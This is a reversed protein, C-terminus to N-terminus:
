SCTGSICSFALIDTFDRVPLIYCQMGLAAQIRWCLMSLPLQARALVQFEALTPVPVPFSVQEFHHDTNPYEGLVSRSGSSWTCCIPQATSPLNSHHRTSQAVPGWARALGYIGPLRNALGDHWIGADCGTMCEPSLNEQLVFTDQYTTTLSPLVAPVKSFSFIHIIHPAAICHHQRSDYVFHEYTNDMILWAGADQCLQAAREM